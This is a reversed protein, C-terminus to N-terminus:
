AMYLCINLFQGKYMVHSYEGFIFYGLLHAVALNKSGRVQPPDIYM